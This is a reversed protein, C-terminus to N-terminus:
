LRFVIRKNAVNVCYCSIYICTSSRLGKTVGRSLEGESSEGKYGLGELKSPFGGKQTTRDEDVRTGPQKYVSRGRGM